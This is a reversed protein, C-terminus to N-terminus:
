IKNWELEKFIREYRERTKSLKITIFSAEPCPHNHLQAIRYIIYRLSIMPEYPFKDIFARQFRWFDCYIDISIFCKYQDQHQTIFKKLYAGKNNPRTKYNPLEVRTVQLAKTPEIQSCKLCAREHDNFYEFDHLCVPTSQSSQTMQQHEQQEQECLRIAINLLEHDM